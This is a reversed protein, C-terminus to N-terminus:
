LLQSFVTSLKCGIADLSMNEAIYKQGSNGLSFADIKKEIIKKLFESADELRIHDVSIGCHAKRVINAVEGQGVVIIPKGYAMYEFLKTPLATSSIYNDKMPLIFVDAKSMFEGYEDKDLWTDNIEINDISSKAILLRIARLEPGRGKIVFRVALNKSNALKALQIISEFDYASGLIGSYVVTLKEISEVKKESLNEKIKGFDFGVEVTAVREEPIGQSVIAKSITDSICVVMDALRLILQRIRSLFKITWSSNIVGLDELAEPWLDDVNAILPARRVMKGFLGSFWVFFNPSQAFIIDPKRVMLTGISSFFSYVLYNLIRGANTTHSIPPMWFRLLTVDLSSEWRYMKRDSLALSNGDPYHPVGSIVDVKYGQKQLIQVINFIRTSAGGYDPPFYQSLILVRPHSNENAKKRMGRTQYSVKNFNTRM